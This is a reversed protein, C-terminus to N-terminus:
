SDKKADKALAGILLYAIKGVRIGLAITHLTTSGTGAAAHGLADVVAGGLDVAHETGDLLYHGMEFGDGAAYAKRLGRGANYIAFGAVPGDTFAGAGPFQTKIAQSATAALDAATELTKQNAGARRLLERTHAALLAANELTEQPFAMGIGVPTGEYRFVTVPPEYTPAMTAVQAPNVPVSGSMVRTLPVPEAIDSKLEPRATPSEPAPPSKLERLRASHLSPFQGTRLLYAAYVSSVPGEGGMWRTLLDNVPPVKAPDPMFRTTPDLM